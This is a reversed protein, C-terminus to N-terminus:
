SVRPDKDRRARSSVIFNTEPALLDNKEAFAFFCAAPLTQKSKVACRQAAHRLRSRIRTIELTLRGNALIGTPM